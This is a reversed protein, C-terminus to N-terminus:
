SQRPGGTAIGDLTETSLCYAVGGIMWSIPPCNTLHNMWCHVFTPHVILFHLFCGNIAKGAQLATAFRWPNSEATYAISRLQVFFEGTFAVGGVSRLWLERTYGPLKDKRWLVGQIHAFFLLEQLVELPVLLLQKIFCVQLLFFKHCARKVTNWSNIFILRRTVMPYQLKM